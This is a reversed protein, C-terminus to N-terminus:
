SQSNEGSANLNDWEKSLVDIKEKLTQNNYEVEKIKAKEGNEVFSLNEVLNRYIMTKCEEIQIKLMEKRRELSPLYKDDM